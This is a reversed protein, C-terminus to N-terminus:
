HMVSGGDVVLVQGTVFDSDRSCLYLLTGCMDEPAAERQLARSSINRADIDGKWYPSEMVNQSMVLGPALTNIRIGHAGLERALARTMAVIAGKSTVYHLMMPAGKFVTGSAINVIKGYNKKKMEPFVAKVCEFSGRVNVAMMRDWEQSDIESFPKLAVKGFLAANNVLIDVGGFRAVAASVMDRVSDPNTVDTKVYLAAGGGGVLERALPEGDQVDAIVVSIGEAVLAKAYQAGIGQSAGTVIAVSGNIRGNGTMM